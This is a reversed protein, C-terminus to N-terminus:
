IGFEDKEQKIFNNVQVAVKNEARKNFEPHKNKLWFIVAGLNGDAAHQILAQKMEDNIEAEAEAVALAFAEDANLWDYYTQRGIGVARCIDSIFGRTERYYELFMLKKPHEINTQVLQVDKKPKKPM